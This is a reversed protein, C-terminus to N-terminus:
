IFYFLTKLNSNLDRGLERAKRRADEVTEDVVVKKRIEESQLKGNDARMIKARPAWEEVM